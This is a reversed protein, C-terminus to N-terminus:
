KKRTYVIEMNKFEKGDTGPGYMEMIHKDQSVIRVVERVTAKKGTVVDDMEAAFAMVQGTPDAAGAFLLIGTGMTDMWTSLYQKKFNDYATVGIGEYTRGEWEGRYAQHLYRGGLVWTNEATGTGKIAPAGPALWSTIEANWSGVLPELVKHGPGPTAFKTWAEMMAVQEPTMAQQGQEQAAGVSLHLTATLTVALALRIWRDM